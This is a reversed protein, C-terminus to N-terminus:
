HREYVAISIANLESYINQRWDTDSQALTRQALAQLQVQVDIVDCEAALMAVGLVREAFLCTSNGSNAEFVQM